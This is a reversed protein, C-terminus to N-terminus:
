KGANLKQVEAPIEVKRTWGDRHTGLLSWTRETFIKTERGRVAVFEDRNLKRDGVMVPGDNQPQLKSAKPAPAPKEKETEPALPAQTVSPPAQIDTAAPTENETEETAGLGADPAVKPNKEVKPPAAPKNKAENKAAERKRREASPM